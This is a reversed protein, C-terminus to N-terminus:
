LLLGQVWSLCLMLLSRGGLVMTLYNLFNVNGMKRGKDCGPRFGASRMEGWDKLGQVSSNLDVTGWALTHQYLTQVVFQMDDRNETSMESFPTFRNVQLVKWTESDLLVCNGFSIRLRQKNPLAKVDHKKLFYIRSNRPIGFRKSLEARLSDFGTTRLEKRDAHNGHEAKLKREARLKGRAKDRKKNYNLSSTSRKKKEIGLYGHNQLLCFM